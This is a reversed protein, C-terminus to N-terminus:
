KIQKKNTNRKMLNSNTSRKNRKRPHEKLEQIPALKLTILDGYLEEADERERALYDCNLFIFNNVLKTIFNYSLMIVLTMTVLGPYSEPKASIINNILLYSVLLYIGGSAAIWIVTTIPNKRIVDASYRIAKNTKVKYKYVAPYIYTWQVALVMLIFIGTWIFYGAWIEPILFNSAMIVLSILVFLIALYFGLVVDTMITPLYRSLCYKLFKLTGVKTERVFLDQSLFIVLSVLSHIFASVLLVILASIIVKQVVLLIFEILIFIQSESLNKEKIMAITTSNEAMMKNTTMLISKFLSQCTIAMGVIYGVVLSLWLIWNSKMYDVLLNIYDKINYKRQYIENM